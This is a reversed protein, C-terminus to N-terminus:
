ASELVCYYLKIDELVTSETASLQDRMESCSINPQLHSRPSLLLPSAMPQGNSEVPDVQSRNM